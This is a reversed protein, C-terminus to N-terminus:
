NHKRVNKRVKKKKKKEILSSTETSTESYHRVGDGEEISYRSVNGGEM